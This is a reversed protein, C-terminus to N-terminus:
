AVTPSRQPWVTKKLDDPFIDLERLWLREFVALIVAQVIRLQADDAPSGGGPSGPSSAEWEEPGRGLYELVIATAQEIKAILDDDEDSHTIRCHDKAQQLTILAAM